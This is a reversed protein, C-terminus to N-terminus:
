TASLRYVIFVFAIMIIIICAITILMRMASTDRRYWADRVWVDNWHVRKLYKYGNNRLLSNITENPNHMEIIWVNVTVGWDMTSLVQEEYGEVDLSFIDIHHVNNERLIEVLPRVHVKIIKSDKHWHDRLSQTDDHVVASALPYDDNIVFDMEGEPGLACNVVKDKPRNNELKKFESPNPEILVGTWGLEEFHKTNSFTIGDLAGAEVYTGAKINRVIKSLEKDEKFQSYFMLHIQSLLKRVTVRLYFRRLYGVVAGRRSGVRDLRQTHEFGRHDHVMQPGFLPARGRHATIHCVRYIDYPYVFSRVCAVGHFTSGDLRCKDRTFNCRKAM